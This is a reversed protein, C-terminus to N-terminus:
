EDVPVATTHGPMTQMCDINDPVVGLSVGFRAEGTMRLM